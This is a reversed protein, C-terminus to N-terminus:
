ELVKLIDVYCHEWDDNGLIWKSILDKNHSGHIKELKNLLFSVDMNNKNFKEILLRTSDFNRMEDFAFHMSGDNYNTSGLLSLELYKNSYTFGNQEFLNIIKDVIEFKGDFTRMALGKIIKVYEEDSIPYYKGHSIHLDTNKMVTSVIEYDLNNSNQIRAKIVNLAEMTYWSDCGVNIQEMMNNYTELVRMFACICSDDEVHMDVGHNLLIKIGDYWLASSYKMLLTIGEYVDCKNLTNLSLKSIYDIVIEDGGVLDCAEFLDDMMDRVDDNDDDDNNISVDDLTTEM